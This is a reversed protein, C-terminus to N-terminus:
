VAFNANNASRQKEQAIPCSRSYIDDGAEFIATSLSPSKEALEYAAFIAAPGGGIIAVDYSQSM